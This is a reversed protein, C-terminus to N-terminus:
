LFYPLYKYYYLKKTIILCLLVSPALSIMIM